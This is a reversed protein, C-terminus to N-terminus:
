QASMLTVIKDSLFINVIVVEYKTICISICLYFFLGKSIQGKDPRVSLRLQNCFSQNRKQNSGLWITLSMRSVEHICKSKNIYESLRFSLIMFLLSLLLSVNTYRQYWKYIDLSVLSVKDHTLLIAYLFYIVPISTIFYTFSVHSVHLAISLITEIM